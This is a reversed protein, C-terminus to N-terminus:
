AKETCYVEVKVSISIELFHLKLSCYNHFQKNTWPNSLEMAERISDTNESIKFVTPLLEIVWYVCPLVITFAMTCKKFGTDSTVSRSRTHRTTKTLPWEYDSGRKDEGGGVWNSFVTKIKFTKEEFFNKRWDLIAM